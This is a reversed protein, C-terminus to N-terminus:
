AVLLKGFLNVIFGLPTVYRNLFFLYVILGKKGKWIYEVEDGFTIIHDWALIMFSVFGMSVTVRRSLNFMQGTDVPFTPIESDPDGAM